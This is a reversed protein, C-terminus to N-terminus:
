DQELLHLEPMAQHLRAAELLLDATHPKGIAESAAALQAYSRAYAPHDVDNHRENEVVSRAASRMAAEVDFAMLRAMILVMHPTGTLSCDITVTITVGNGASKRPKATKIPPVGFDPHKVLEYLWGGEEIAAMGGIDFSLKM